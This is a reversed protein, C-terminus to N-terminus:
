LQRMFDSFGLYFKDMVYKICALTKDFDSFKHLSPVLNIGKSLHTVLFLNVIRNIQVETLEFNTHKLLIHMIDPMTIYNLKYDMLQFVKIEMDIIHDESYMNDASYSWESM